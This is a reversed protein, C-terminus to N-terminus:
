APLYVSFTAGQGPQSTATIAGGHNAAVKECIALGIGTGAYQSKTHLRQFVQFIRDIYKEDFGIGNDAVDIRYYARVSRTPKVTPPLDSVEILEASINIVPLIDPRFFKLANSILNQFLQGLQSKDGQIVPLSGVNVAASTEQIRLDLDTLVMNIVGNLAVLGTSDQQTSIRSFTLLDRILTSMRSAASQMRELYMAGEGLQDGHQRILLDGFQQVKRLPEQLDHSAIYAFQELNHNSRIFLQNSEALEENTAALEENTAALEENTAALEENIAALEETREQVQRELAIQVQRQETVDQATGRLAIPQNDADFYLQAQTHIIRMKGTLQNSVPHENEYFGSSGPQLSAAIGEKVSQRSEDPLLKYVEELSKTSETIGLWNMFRESFTFTSQNVDVSWTALEALEIAGRLAVEADEIQQKAVILDTVEAATNMVGYVEGKADYLPTFSYNFYYPQLKGDVKLDVRQNKAHFPIGSTFVNDLQSYIDQNSLEPLVEQYTKGVVNNGKGWVDMISQNALEIRMERGVYVGIPFPASEVLSRLKQASEALVLEIQGRETIDQLTGNFRYAVGKDTFQAKGKARVTREHKTEPHVLTYEIDYQGGSQGQLANWIAGSVRQKDKDTIANLAVDLEVEKQSPVGFWEKLRNNATFKNTAPNLDWVGLEAAEIAFTLQDKSEEIKMRAMVQETVDIGMVLIANSTGAPNRLPKCVFDIYYTHSVGDVILEVPTSRTQNTEGSRLTSHLVREVFEGKLEPFIDILPKGIISHDKGCIALAPSNAMEVILDEGILLCTAVPVENILGRFREDIEIKQQAAIQDQGDVSQTVDELIGLLRRSGTKKDIHIKGRSQLWRFQGSEDAHVRFKVNYQEGLQNNTAQQVIEEILIRDDPHILNLVQDYAVLDDGSFNFLTKCSDDWRVLQNTIDLEWTGICAAQLTFKIREYDATITQDLPEREGNM